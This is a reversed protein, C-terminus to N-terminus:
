VAIHSKSMHYKLLAFFISAFKWFDFLKSFIEFDLVMTMFGNTSYFDRSSKYKANKFVPIKVTSVRNASM